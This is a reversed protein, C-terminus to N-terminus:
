DLHHKLTQSVVGSCWFSGSMDPTVRLYFCNVEM